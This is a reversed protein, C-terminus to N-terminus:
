SFVHNMPIPANEKSLFAQLKSALESYRAWVESQVDDKSANEKHLIKIQERQSLFEHKGLYASSFVDLVAHCQMIDAADKCHEKVSEQFCRVRLKLVKTKCNTKATFDIFDHKEKFSALDMKQLLKLNQDIYALRAQSHYISEEEVEQSFLPITLFFSILLFIVSRM